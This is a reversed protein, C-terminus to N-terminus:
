QGGDTMEEVTPMEEVSEVEMQEPDIDFGDLFSSALTQIREVREMENRQFRMQKATMLMMGVDLLEHQGFQVRYGDYALANRRETEIRAALAVAGLEEAEMRVDYLDDEDLESPDYSVIDREPEFEPKEEAIMGNMQTEDNM